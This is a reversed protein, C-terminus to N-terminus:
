QANKAAPFKAERKPDDSEMLGTYSVFLDQVIGFAIQPGCGHVFTLPERRNIRPRGPGTARGWGLGDLSKHPISDMLSAVNLAPSLATLPHKGDNWKPV